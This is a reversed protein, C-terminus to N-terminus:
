SFKDNKEKSYEDHLAKIYARVGTLSFYLILGVGFAEPVSLSVECFDTVFFVVAGWVAGFILIAILTGIFIFM